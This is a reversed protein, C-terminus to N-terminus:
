EGLIQSPTFSWAGNPQLTALGLSVGIDFVEVRAGAEATGILTPRNDNTTQGNVLPGSFSEVVDLVQTIIPKDPATID